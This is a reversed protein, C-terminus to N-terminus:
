SDNFSFFLSCGKETSSIQYTGTTQCESSERGLMNGSNGYSDDIKTDLISATTAHISYGAPPDGPATCAATGHTGISLGNSNLVGTPLQPDYVGIQSGYGKGELFSIHAPAYCTNELTTVPTNSNLHIGGPLLPDNVSKITNQDILKALTLHYWSLLSESSSDSIPKIKSDGNGNIYSAENFYRNANTADGPYEKYILYFAMYSTKYNNLESAVKNIKSQEILKSAATVGATLLGIIILVIALEILSFAKKKM